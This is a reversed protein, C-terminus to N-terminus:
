DFYCKNNSKIILIYNKLVFGETINFKFKIRVALTNFERGADTIELKYLGLRNLDRTCPRRKPSSTGDNVQTTQAVILDVIM